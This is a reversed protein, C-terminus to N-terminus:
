NWSAVEEMSIERGNKIAHAFQSDIKNLDNEKKGSYNPDISFRVDLVKCGPNLEELAKFLQEM